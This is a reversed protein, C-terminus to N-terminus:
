TCYIIFLPKVMFQISIQSLREKAEINGSNSILEKASYIFNFAVTQTQCEAIPIPYQIFMNPSNSNITTQTLEIEIFEILLDFAAM